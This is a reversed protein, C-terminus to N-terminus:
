RKAGEGALMAALFRGGAEIGVPDIAHGLGPRRIWQVPLGAAQLAPIAQFMAEVPVVDDADGHVLMVPPRSRVDRALEAAGILAGSFGLVAAVPKARRPAVFLAAMTGQSFGLLALDRDELSHAALLEDLWADLLPAAHSVGALLAAPRRDLLSFWQRGYPAMDCPFPADPAVFRAHPLHRALLPALEILDAGDAGVGHLMVVLHRPAGGASPGWRPGSLKAM